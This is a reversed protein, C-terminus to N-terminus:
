RSACFQLYSNNKNCDKNTPVFIASAARGAPARGDSRSWAENMGPVQQMHQRRQVVQQGGVFEAPQAGQDRARVPCASAHGGPRLGSHDLVVFLQRFVGRQQRFQAADHQRASPRDGSKKLAANGFRM